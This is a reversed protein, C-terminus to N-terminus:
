RPDPSVIEVHDGALERYAHTLDDVILAVVLWDLLTPPDAFAGVVELSRAAGGWRCSGTGAQAGSPASYSGPRRSQPPM